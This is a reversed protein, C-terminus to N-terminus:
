VKTGQGFILGETAPSLRLGDLTDSLAIQCSLRSQDTRDISAELIDDEQEEMAPLRDLFSPDIHVHCTGCIANGGCIALIEPTRADRLVEMVSQGNAGELMLDAAGKRSVIIRPM